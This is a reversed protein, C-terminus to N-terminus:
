TTATAPLCRLLQNGLISSSHPLASSHIDEAQATDHVVAQSSAFVWIPFMILTVGVYQLTRRAEAGKSTAWFCVVQDTCHQGLTRSCSGAHSSHQAVGEPPTMVLPQLEQHINTVPSSVPVYTSLNVSVQGQLLQLDTQCPCGLNNQNRTMQLSTSACVFTKM